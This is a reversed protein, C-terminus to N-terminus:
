SRAARCAGTNPIDLPGLLVEGGLEATRDAAADVDTTGFYGVWHGAPGGSPWVDSGTTPRDAWRDAPREARADPLNGRGRRDGAGRPRRRGPLVAGVGGSGAVDIRALHLHGSATRWRALSRGVPQARALSFATCYTSYTTCNMADLRSSRHFGATAPYELPSVASATSAAPRSSTSRSPTSASVIRRRASAQPHEWYGRCSSGRCPPAARRAGPSAAPQDVHRSEVHVPPVAEHRQHGHGVSTARTPGRGCSNERGIRPGCAVRRPSSVSASRARPPISPGAATSASRASRVKVNPDTREVRRSAELRIGLRTLPRARRRERVVRGRRAHGFKGIRQRPGRGFARELGPQAPEDVADLPRVRAPCSSAAGPSQRPGCTNLRGKLQEPQGM